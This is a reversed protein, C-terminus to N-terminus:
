AVSGQRDREALERDLDARPRGTVLKEWSNLTEKKKDHTFIGSLKMLDTKIAKMCNITCRYNESFAIEMEEKDEDNFNSTELFDPVDELCAAIYHKFEEVNDEVREVLKSAEM